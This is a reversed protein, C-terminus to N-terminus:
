RQIAYEFGRSQLRTSDKGVGARPVEVPIGEFESDVVGGFDVSMGEVVNIRGEVAGGRGVDISKGLYHAHIKALFTTFQVISPVRIHINFSLPFRGAPIDCLFTSGPHIAALFAIAECSSPFTRITSRGTEGRVDLIM